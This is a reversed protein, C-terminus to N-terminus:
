GDGPLPDLLALVKNDGSHLAEDLPAYCGAEDDRFLLPDAVVAPDFGERVMDTKRHKFTGTVDVVEVLRLFLPQAYAALSGTVESYLKALDLEGDVVLGAGAPQHM